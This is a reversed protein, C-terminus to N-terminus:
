KHLIVKKARKSKPHTHILYMILSGTAVGVGSWLLYQAKKHRDNADNFVATRSTGDYVTSQPNPSALYINKYTSYADQEKRYGIGAAVLGGVFGTLELPPVWGGPKQPVKGPAFAGVGIEDPHMVQERTYGDREFYWIVTHNGAHSSDGVWDLTQPVLSSHPDIMLFPRFTQVNKNPPVKYTIEMRRGKITAQANRAWNYSVKGTLRPEFRLAADRPHQGRAKWADEQADWGDGVEFERDSAPPYVGGSLDQGMNRFGALAEERTAGLTNLVRGAFNDANLELERRVAPNREQLDHGLILHGLEHALLSYVAWKTQANKEFQTVFAPNYRIYNNSGDRYAEANRTATSEQLKIVIASSSADKIEELILRLREHAAPNAAVPNQAQLASALCFLSVVIPFIKM